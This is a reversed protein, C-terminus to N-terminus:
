LWGMRELSRAVLQSMLQHGYPTPHQDDSFGYSRWNPISADLATATCQSLGSGIFAPNLLLCAGDTVNILSYQAPNEVQDKFASYFDVQAVQAQLNAALAANFANVLADIMAAATAADEASMSSLQNKVKPTETLAPVNLVAVRAGKAALGNVAQALATGQIALYTGVVQGAGGTALLSASAGAGQAADVATMYAGLYQAVYGGAAMQATVQASITAQAQDAPLQGAAVAQTVTNAVAATIAAQTGQLTLLNGIVNALDNSGGDILVLDSAGITPAADAIQKLMSMPSDSLAVVSGGIAYNTCNSDQTFTAGGDASRYHACLTLGYQAAIREPWVMFPQGNTDNGQVTFKFGFTGSDALSDGMVKVSAIRARPTTDAGGGGCAALAAAAVVTVVWHMRFKM